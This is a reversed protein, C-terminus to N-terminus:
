IANGVNTLVNKIGGALFQLAAVVAISVLFLILGYEVLTQGEERHRLDYMWSSAMVHLRILM